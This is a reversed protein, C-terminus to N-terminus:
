NMSNDLLWIPQQLFLKTKFYTWDISYLSSSRDYGLCCAHRKDPKEEKRNERLKKDNKKDCKTKDDM